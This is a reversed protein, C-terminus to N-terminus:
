ELPLLMQESNGWIAKLTQRPLRMESEIGEVFRILEALNGTQILERGVSGVAQLVASVEGSVTLENVGM